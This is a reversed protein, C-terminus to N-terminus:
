ERPRDWPAPSENLMRLSWSELCCRALLKALSWPSVGRRQNFNLNPWSNVLHGTALKRPQSPENMQQTPRPRMSLIQRRQYLMWRALQFCHFADARPLSRTERDIVDVYSEKRNDMVSHVYGFPHYARSLDAFLIGRVYSIRSISARDARWRQRPFIASNKQRHLCAPM